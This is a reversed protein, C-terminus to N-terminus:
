ATKQFIQESLYQSDCKADAYNRYQCEQQLDKRLVFRLKKSTCRIFRLWLFRNFRPRLLLRNFRPRLFENFGFFGFALFFLSLSLPLPSFLSLSYRKIHTHQSFLHVHFHSILHFGWHFYLSFHFRCHLSYSFHYTHPFYCSFHFGCHFLNMWSPILLWFLIFDLLPTALQFSIQSRSMFDIYLSRFHFKCHLNCM